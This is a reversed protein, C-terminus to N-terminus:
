FHINKRIRKLRKEMELIQTKILTMEQNTTFHNNEKIQIAKNYVRKFEPYFNYNDDFNKEYVVVSSHNRNIVWGARKFTCHTEKRLLLGLINRAISIDSDRRKSKLSIYLIGSAKEVIKILLKEENTLVFEEKIIIAEKM